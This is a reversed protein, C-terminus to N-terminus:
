REVDAPGSAAFGANEVLSRRLSADNIKAAQDQLLTNAQRLMDGARGDQAAHLVRYLDFCIRWPEPAGSLGHAEGCGAADLLRLAEDAYAHARVREDRLLAHRANNALALVTLAISGGERMLSLSQAYAKAAEDLRGLGTLADGLRDLCYALIGPYNAREILEVAGNACDHALQGEGARRAWDSLTALAYAHFRVNGSDQILALAHEGHQRAQVYEGLFMAIRCLEIRMHCQGFVNGMDRYIRLGREYYERAKPYNWVIFHSDGFFLMTRAEGWLHHLQRYADVIKHECEKAEEERGQVIRLAALYRL